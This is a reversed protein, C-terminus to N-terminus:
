SPRKPGELVDIALDRLVQIGRTKWCEVFESNRFWVERIDCDISDMFQLGGSRIWNSVNRQVRVADIIGVVALLTQDQTKRPKAVSSEENDPGLYEEVIVQNQPQYIGKRISDDLLITTYQSHPEAFSVQSWVSKLDKYVDVKKDTM